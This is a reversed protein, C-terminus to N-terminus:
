DIEDLEDKLSYIGENMKFDEFRDSPEYEELNVPEPINFGLLAERLASDRYAKEFQERRVKEIAADVPEETIEQSRMFDLVQQPSTKTAKAMGGFIEEAVTPQQEVIRKNLEEQTIEPTILDESLPDEPDIVNLEQRKQRGTLGRKLNKIDAFEDELSRAFLEEPQSISADQLAKEKEAIKPKYREVVDTQSEGSSM